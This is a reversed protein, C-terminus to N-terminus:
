AEPRDGSRIAFASVGLGYVILLWCSWLSATDMSEWALTTDSTGVMAGAGAIVVIAMAIVVGIRVM